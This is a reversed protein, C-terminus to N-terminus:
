NAERRVDGTAEVRVVFEEVLKRQDADTLSSRLLEGALKAALEGAEARLESRARAVEQDVAALADNRIREAAAEADTLLTEREAAARERAAQRIEEVEADLRDARAQWEALRSEADALVRAASDLDGRVQERRESFFRQIPQRTFHILVGLLLILNLGQWIITSAGSGEEGGASAVAVSPLLTLLAAAVRSM